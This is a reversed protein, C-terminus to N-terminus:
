FDLGVEAETSAVSLDALYGLYRIEDTNLFAGVLSEKLRRNIRLLTLIYTKL